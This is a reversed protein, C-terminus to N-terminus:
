LTIPFEMTINKFSNSFYVFSVSSTCSFSLPHVFLSITFTFLSFYYPYLSFLTHMCLFLTHILVCQTPTPIHVCAYLSPTSFTCLFLSLLILKFLLSISVFYLIIYLLFFVSPFFYLSLALSLSLFVALKYTFLAVIKLFSVLIYIYYNEFGMM